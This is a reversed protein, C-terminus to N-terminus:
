RRSEYRSRNSAQNQAAPSRHPVREGTEEILTFSKVILNGGRFLFKPTVEGEIEIKLNKETEHHLKVLEENKQMAFTEGDSERKFMLEHEHNTTHTDSGDQVTGVWRVIAPESRTHSGKESRFAEREAAVANNMLLGVTLALVLVSISTIKM